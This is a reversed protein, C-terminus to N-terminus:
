LFLFIEDILLVKCMCYKLLWGLQKMGFGFFSWWMWRGSRLCGFGFVRGLVGGVAVTAFACRGAPGEVGLLGGFSAEVGFLGLLDRYVVASSWVDTGRTRGGCVPGFRGLIAMCSGRPPLFTARLKM